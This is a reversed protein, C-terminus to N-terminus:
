SVLKLTGKEENNLNADGESLHRIMMPERAANILPAANGDKERM